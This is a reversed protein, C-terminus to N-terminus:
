GTARNNDTSASQTHDKKKNKSQQERRGSWGGEKGVRREESRAGGAASFDRAWRDVGYRFIPNWYTMVLVAAGTTAVAEVARLVDAVKTGHGLAHEVARQITGGDMM